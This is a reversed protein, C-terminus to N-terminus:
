KNILCDDDDDDDDIALEFLSHPTNRRTTASRRAKRRRRRRQYLLRKFDYDSLSFPSLVPKEEKLFYTKGNTQKNKSCSKSLSSNKRAFIASSRRRRVFFLTDQRDIM